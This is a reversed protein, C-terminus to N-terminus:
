VTISESLTATPAMNINLDLTQGVLVTVDQNKPEYGQAAVVINYLGPTLGGLTYTGDPRSHVTHVFGSATEVANIEANPVANGQANVIKGRLTATTSQGFASAVVVLALLLILWHHRHKM